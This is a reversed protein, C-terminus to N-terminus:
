AELRIAALLRGYDQEGEHTARRYSFFRDANAYTDHPLIDVAGVGAQALRAGAFAKLDFQWRGADNPKFYRDFTDDRELFTERFEAGVEYSEQAICPGVAAAIRDRQAGLGVMKSVTSEIVGDLAGRWGAHAAGIVGAEADAMLVPACDATVVGLMLDPAKTALADAKPRDALPADLVLCDTSHVQHLTALQDPSAGMWDAARRRNEEALEMRDGSGLGCNLSEFLGESVGGERTFFAHRIRPLAGLTESQVPNLTM